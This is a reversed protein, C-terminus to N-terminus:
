VSPFGPIPVGPEDDGVVRKAASIAACHTAADFCQIGNLRLQEGTRVHATGPANLINQYAKGMRCLCTYPLYPLTLHPRLLCALGTGTVHIHRGGYLSQEKARRREIPDGGPRDQSERWSRLSNGGAAQDIPAPYVWFGPM